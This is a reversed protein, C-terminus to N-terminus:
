LEEPTWDMDRYVDKYFDYDREPEDAHMLALTGATEGAARRQLERDIEEESMEQNAEIFERSSAM